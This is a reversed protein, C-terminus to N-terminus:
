SKFESVLIVDEGRVMLQGIKRTCEVYKRNLSKVTIEPIKIGLKELLKTCDKSPNPHSIKAESFKYKRRTWTETCDSLALNFHKDFAVINGIIYGRIGHEKRIYIKVTTRESRFKQLLSIPGKASEM